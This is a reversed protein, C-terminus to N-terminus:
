PIKNNVATNIFSLADTLYFVWSSAFILRLIENNQRVSV